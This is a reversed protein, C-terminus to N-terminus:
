PAEVFRPLQGGFAKSYVNDQNLLAIPEGGLTVKGRQAPPVPQPPTIVVPAEPQFEVTFSECGFTKVGADKLILLIHELLAPEPAM